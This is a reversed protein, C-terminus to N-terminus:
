EVIMAGNMVMWHGPFTCLYPYRGKAAPPQAAADIVGAPSHGQDGARQLVVPGGAARAPGAAGAPSPGARPRTSSGVLLVQNM